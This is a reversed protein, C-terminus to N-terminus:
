PRGHGNRRWAVRIDQKALAEQIAPSGMVYDTLYEPPQTTHRILNFRLKFKFPLQFRRGKTFPVKFGVRIDKDLTSEHNRLVQFLLPLTALGLIVYPNDIGDETLFDIARRIRDDKDALNGAAKAVDPGHLILAASDAVTGPKSATARILVNIGKKVKLRYKKARATEREPAVFDGPVPAPEDDLGADPPLEEDGPALFDDLDQFDLNLTDAM